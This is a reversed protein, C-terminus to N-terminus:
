STFLTALETRGRIGLKRYVAALQNTVTNPSTGLEAAIEKATLRQAALRAVELERDTLGDASSRSSWTVADPTTALVERSWVEWRRSVLEQRREAHLRALLLATDAASGPHGLDALRGAVEELAEVDRDRAARAHDRLLVLLGGGAQEAAPELLAFAEDPAGARAACHAVSGAFFVHRWSQLDRALAMLTETARRGQGSRWHSRAEAWGLLMAVKPDSHATEPLSRRHQEAEVAAWPDAGEPGGTHLATATACALATGAPGLGLPDRWAMNVMADEAHRHAARVDGSFLELLGLTFQWNGILGPREVLDRALEREGRERTAIVDGESSLVWLEGVRVLDHAAPWAPFPDPLMERLRRLNRRAEALPGTLCAAITSTVLAHVQSTLDPSEPGDSEPGDSEAGDSEPGPERGSAAGGVKRPPFASQLGATYRWRALDQEALTRERGAPADELAATLVEVAGRADYARAGLHQAFARARALRQRPTESAPGSGEPGDSLYTRAADLDGLSSAATGALRRAEAHHPDVALVQECARAVLRHRHTAHAHRALTLAESTSLDDGADLGLSAARLTLETARDTPGLAAADRARRAADRCAERWRVEPCSERVVDAYVPGALAVEGESDVEALGAHRLEGVAGPDLVKEPLPGGAALTRVQDLADPSLGDLRAGVLDAVRPTTGPPGILEWGHEGHALAGTRRSGLVVERVLLPNGGVRALVSAAASPTLRDGLLDAALSLCAEDPLPGLAVDELDGADYLEAFGAPLRDLGRSTLVTRIRCERVLHAVVFQSSSDLREVGDVLLVTEARRAAFWEVLQAPGPTVPLDALTLFAGLPVDRGAASGTVLPASLNREQLLARVERLLHTKGIGAPGHVLLAASEEETVRTTLAAASAPALDPSSRM